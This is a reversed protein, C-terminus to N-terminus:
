LEREGTTFSWQLTTPEESISGEFEVRFTTNPPLPESPVLTLTDKMYRPAPDHGSVRDAWWWLLPVEANTAENVMRASPNSNRFTTLHDTGYGFWSATVIFGSGPCNAGNSSLPSQLTPCPAEYGAFSTPVDVMGDAPWVVPDILKATTGDRYNICNYGEKSAYGITHLGNHLLPLRHYLSNIWLDVAQGMSQMGEVTSFGCAIVSDKGAQENEPSYFPNDHNDETHSLFCIPKGNNEHEWILYDLHNACGETMVGTDVSVGDVGALARYENLHAIGEEATESSLATAPYVPPEEINEEEDDASSCASVLLLASCLCAVAHFRDSQPCTAETLPCRGNPPSGVQAAGKYRNTPLLLHTCRRNEDVRCETM